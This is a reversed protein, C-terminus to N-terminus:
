GPHEGLCKVWGNPCIINVTQGFFFIHLFMCAVRFRKESSYDPLDPAEAPVSDCLSSSFDSDPNGNAMAWTGEEEMRDEQYCIGASKLM